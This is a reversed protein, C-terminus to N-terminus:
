AYLQFGDCLTFLKFYSNTAPHEKKSFFHTNISRILFINYKFVKENISKPHISNFVVKGYNGKKCIVGEKGFSVSADVTCVTPDLTAMNPLVSAGKTGTFSGDEDIIVSAHQFPFHARNPSKVLKLQNVRIIAGGDDPKCHACTRFTICGPEDFGVMTTNSVTLRSSFPLFVGSSSCNSQDSTRLQYSGIDRLKSHSVILSDKIMAGGWPSNRSNAQIYEIGAVDNDLAVFDVFRIFTLVSFTLSFFNIHYALCM